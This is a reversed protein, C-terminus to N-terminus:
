KAVCVRQWSNLYPTVGKQAVEDNVNVKHDSSLLM